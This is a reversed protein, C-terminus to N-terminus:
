NSTTLKVLVAPQHVLPLSNSQTHLVHGRQGEREWTKVYIPLGVTNVTENFDAPAYYTAFTDTTGVPYAHGENAAILRQGNVSARYQEFVIGYVEIQNIRTQMFEKASPTNKIYDVVMPHTVLKAWFEASVQVHVGNMVDGKLNDEIQNFVAECKARIDTGATGLVFDVTVQSLGFATFLNVLTSGDGSLVTGKLASMLKWEKTIDHRARMRQLRRAIETSMDTLGEIGFGRVDQVDNPMVNDEHVTQKIAFSFTNRNIKSAVTGEGGWEHDPLLALTGSQEEVMVTRNRVGRDAFLGSQSIRGWQVPFQNIAHTLETLTFDNIQM